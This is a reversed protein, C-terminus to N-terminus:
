VQRERHSRDAQARWKWSSFSLKPVGHFTNRRIVKYECTKAFALCKFGLMIIKDYNYLSIPVPTLLRLLKNQESLCVCM